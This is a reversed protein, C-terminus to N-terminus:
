WSLKKREEAPLKPIRVLCSIVVAMIVLVLGTIFANNYSQTTDFVWGYFVPALMGLPALVAVTTGLISGFAKRGFYRGLIIIVLPTVAGSSLGHCALLVYAAPINQFLLYTGLGIVQFLFAATLLYQIRNKPVRDAVLGGFFRSPLTFFIMFGMMASAAEKTLGTDTLFPHIHLNFGAGVINHVSFSAILLWFTTTKIAQRFSYEIEEYSSAYGAGRSVMDVEENEKREDIGAGDPLMGYHEPRHPRIMLYAMPISALIIIGFLLCTFRWDTVKM